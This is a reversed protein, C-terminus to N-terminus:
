ACSLGWAEIDGGNDQKVGLWEEFKAGSNNIELLKRHNQILHEREHMFIDVGM